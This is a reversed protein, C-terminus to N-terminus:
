TSFSSVWYKSWTQRQAVTGKFHFDVKVIDQFGESLSPARYRQAFSKFAIGPLMIRNEPNTSKDNLARVCDNHECLRPSAMFHICRIPIRFGRAMDVWYARDKEDANTRDIVVSEGANLHERAVKICKDRSKLIDQNVREYGLPQLKDWVFTSKGAGPSGCFIVIDQTNQKEIM